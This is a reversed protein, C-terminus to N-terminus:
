RVVEFGKGANRTSYPPNRIGKGADCGGSLMRVYPSLSPVQSPTTISKPARPPVYRSSKSSRSSEIPTHSTRTDARPEILMRSSVIPRSRMLCVPFCGKRITQDAGGFTGADTSDITLSSSAVRQTHPELVINVGQLDHRNGPQIRTKVGWLSQAFLALAAPETPVRGALRVGGGAAIAVACFDRHVGLGIFRM